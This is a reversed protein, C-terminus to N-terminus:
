CAGENTLFASDQAEFLARQLPNAGFLWPQFIDDQFVRAIIAVVLNVRDTSVCLLADWGGLEPCNWAVRGVNEVFKDSFDASTWPSQPLFLDFKGFYASAFRHTDRFLRDM